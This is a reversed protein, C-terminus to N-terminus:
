AVLELAEELSKDERSKVAAAEDTSTLVKVYKYDARNNSVLGIKGKSYTDDTINLRLQNNLVAIIRNGTLTVMATIDEGHKLIFPKSVLIKENLTNFNLGHRFVSIYALSDKIGLFYFCRDNKYRFAIGSYQSDDEPRFTVKLVYDKWLSDGAIIMPHTSRNSKNYHTQSMLNGSSGTRVQWATGWGTGSAFSSVTWNGKKGAEPLYHYETHPGVPASFLGTDLDSFDDRLLVETYPSHKCCSLAVIILLLLSSLFKKM